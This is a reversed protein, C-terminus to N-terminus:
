LHAELVFIGMLVSQRTSLRRLLTLATFVCVVINRRIFTLIPFNYSHPIKVHRLIDHSNLLTKFSKTEYKHRPRNNQTTFLTVSVSIVAHLTSKLALELYSTLLLLSKPPMLMTTQKAITQYEHTTVTVRVKSSTKLTHSFSCIYFCFVAALEVVM